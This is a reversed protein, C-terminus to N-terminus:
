YIPVQPPRRVRLRLRPQCKSASRPQQICPVTDYFSSSSQTDAPSPAPTRALAAVPEPRTSPPQHGCRYSRHQASSREGQLGTEGLGHWLAYLGAHPPQGGSEGGAAGSTSPLSCASPRADPLASLPQRNRFVLAPDTLTSPASLNVDVEDSDGKIVM